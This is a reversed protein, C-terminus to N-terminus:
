YKINFLDISLSDDIILNFKEFQKVKIMTKLKSLLSQFNNQKKKFINCFSKMALWQMEEITLLGLLKFISNWLKNIRKELIIEKFSDFDLKFNYNNSHLWRFLRIMTFLLLQYLNLFITEVSNITKDFFMRQNGPCYMVLFDYVNEKWNDGSLVPPCNTDSVDKIRYYDKQIELTKTNVLVGCWQIFTNNGRQLTGNQDTDSFFYKTKDPNCKVDYDKVGKEFLNRFKIINEKSSSVYLYDDILRCMFNYTTPSTDLIDKLRNKELDGLLICCLLPSCISGQAIGKTQHFLQGNYSIYSKFIHERLLNVIKFKTTSFHRDQLISERKSKITSFPDAQHDECFYKPKTFPYIVGNGRQSRSFTIVSKASYESQILNSVIQFIKMQNLSDYCRNIDLSIIYLPTNSRDFSNKLVRHAELLKPYFESKVSLISSGIISPCNLIESNLVSFLPGLTKNISNEFKQNIFQSSVEDYYSMVSDKKSLDLIPRLSKEKPIFRLNPVGLKRYNGIDKKTLLHVPNYIKSGLEQVQVSCLREWNLKSYYVINKKTATETCYFLNRVITSFVDDFIWWIFRMLYEINPLFFDVVQFDKVMEFLRVKQSRVFNIYKLICSLFTKHNHDSGWIKKKPFITNAIIILFQYVKHIPIATDLYEKLNAQSYPSKVIIDKLTEKLIQQLVKSYPFHILRNLINKFIPITKKLNFPLRNRKPLKSLNIENFCELKPSLFICWILKDLCNKSTPNQHGKIFKMPFSYSISGKSYLIHGNHIFSDKLINLKEIKKKELELKTQDLGSVLPKKKENIENKIEMKIPQLEITQNKKIKDRIWKPPRKKKTNSSIIFSEEVLRLNNSNSSKNSSNSFSDQSKINNNNGSGKISLVFSEDFRSNSKFSSSFSDQSKSSDNQSIQKNSNQSNNILNNDNNKQENNNKAQNYIKQKRYRQNYNSQIRITNSINNKISLYNQYLYNSASDGSIQYYHNTKDIKVYFIYNLLLDKVLTKFRQFLKYFHSNSLLYGVSSSPSVTEFRHTPKNFPVLVNKTQNTDVLEQCVEKVLSFIEYSTLSLLNTNELTPDNLIPIQPNQQPAQVEPSPGELPIIIFSNMLFWLYENSDVKYNFPLNSDDFGISHRSNNNKWNIFQFLSVIKYAKLSYLYKFIRPIYSANKLNSEDNKNNADCGGDGFRPKKKIKDDDGDQENDRNHHHNYNIYQM